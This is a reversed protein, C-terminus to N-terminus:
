ELNMSTHDFVKLVSQNAYTEALPGPSFVLDPEDITILEQQALEQLGDPALAMNALDLSEISVRTRAQNLGKEGVAGLIRRIISLAPHSLLLFLESESRSNLYSTFKELATERIVVLGQSEEIRHDIFDNEKMTKWFAKLGICRNGLVEDMEALLESAKVEARPSSSELRGHVIKMVKLFRLIELYIAKAEQDLKASRKRFENMSQLVILKRDAIRFRRITMRLIPFIWDPIGPLQKQVHEGDVVIAVLDTLAEVSASRPEGDFFSMEGFVEGQGLIALTLRRGNYNKFVRAKGEKIIFMKRSLDNETVLCTGAPYHTVRSGAAAIDDGDDGEFRKSQDSSTM